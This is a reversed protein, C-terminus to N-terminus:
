LKGVIRFLLQLRQDLVDQITGGDYFLDEWFGMFFEPFSQPGELALFSFQM